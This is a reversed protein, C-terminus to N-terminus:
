EGQGAHMGEKVRKWYLEHAANLEQETIVDWDGLLDKIEFLTARPEKLIPKLTGCVCLILYDKRYYRYPRYACATLDISGDPGDYPQRWKVPRLGAKLKKAQRLAEIFDM